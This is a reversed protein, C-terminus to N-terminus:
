FEMPGSRSTFSSYLLRRVNDFEPARLPEAGVRKRQDQKGDVTLLIGNWMSQFEDVNLLRNGKFPDAIIVNNEKVHRVMVFYASSSSNLLVIAPSRLSRLGNLDGKLGRAVYGLQEAANKIDLLSLGENAPTNSLKRFNIIEKIIDTESVSDDYYYNLISALVASGCSADYRPRVIGQFKIDAFTDITIKLSSGILSGINLELAQAYFTPMLISLIVLGLLVKAPRM